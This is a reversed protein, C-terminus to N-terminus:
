RVAAAAAVGVVGTGGAVLAARALAIAVPEGLVAEFGGDEGLECLQVAVAVEDLVCERVQVLHGLAFPGLQFLLECRCAGVDGADLPLEFAVGRGEFLALEGGLKELVADTAVTVADFGEAFSFGVEGGARWVPACAARGRRV